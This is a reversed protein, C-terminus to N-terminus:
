GFIRQVRHLGEYRTLFLKWAVPDHAMLSAILKGAREKDEVTCKECDEKVAQILVGLVNLSIPLYTLLTNM